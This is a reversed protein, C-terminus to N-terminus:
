RERKHTRQKAAAQVRQRQADHYLLHSRCKSQVRRGGEDGVPKFDHGKDLVGVGGGRFGISNPRPYLQITGLVKSPDIRRGSAAYLFAADLLVYVNKRAGSNARAVPRHVVM